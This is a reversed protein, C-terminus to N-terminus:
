AGLSAAGASDFRADASRGAHTRRTTEDLGRGSAPEQDPEFRHRVVQAVRPGARAVCVAVVHSPAHRWQRFEWCDARDGCEEPMQAEVEDEDRFRFAVSNLPLRLGQGRAKLYSEKLTWYRLLHEHRREAPVARLAVAEQPAFHQEAIEDGSEIPRLEEVDVGIARDLAVAVVVLGRAHSISFDLRRAIGQADVLRPKGFEDARFEWRANADGAHYALAHRLMARALLFAHRDADFAFRRARAHEAETFDRAHRLLFAADRAADRAAWWVHVTEAGIQAGYYM